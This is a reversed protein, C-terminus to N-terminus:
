PRESVPTSGESTAEDATEFPEACWPCFELTPDIERGCTPCADAARASSSTRSALQYADFTNLVFLVVLPVTVEVPLSAPTVTQPDAFTAVLVLGAGLVFTFWALARRWERLYAHGVGAIGLVSGVAGVLAAMLARRRMDM